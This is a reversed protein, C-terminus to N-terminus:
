MIKEIKNAAEKIAQNTKELKDPQTLVALLAKPGAGITIIYSNKGEVVVKQPIGGESEDMAAEASGLLAANMAAFAELHFSKTMNEYILLGDRSVICGGKVEAASKLDNLIKELHKARM